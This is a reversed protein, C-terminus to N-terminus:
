RLGGALRDPIYQYSYEGTVREDGAINGFVVQGVRTVTCRRVIVDNLIHRCTFHYHPGHDRAVLRTRLLACLDDHAALDGGADAEYELTQM